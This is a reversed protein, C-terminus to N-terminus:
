RPLRMPLSTVLNAGPDSTRHWMEGLPMQQSAVGAYVLSTLVQLSCKRAPFQAGRMVPMSLSYQMQAVCSKRVNRELGKSASATSSRSSGRPADGMKVHEAQKGISLNVADDLSRCRGSEPATGVQGRVAPWCLWAVPPTRSAGALIALAM